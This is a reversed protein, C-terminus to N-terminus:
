TFHNLICYIRSIHRNTEKNINLNNSYYHANNAIDSDHNRERNNFTIRSQALPGGCATCQSVRKHHRRVNNIKSSSDNITSCQQIEM